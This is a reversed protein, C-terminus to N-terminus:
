QSISQLGKAVAEALTQRYNASAIRQAEAPNSLYGGEILVAPRNQGRLVTMFRARRVGRDQAGSAQLLTRHLRFASQFNQEDFANNPFVQRADDEYTRTLHSPMGAPTLCYTEIGALDRNASGSNFHLSLFFDANAEDAITVRDSLGLDVDSTRTMVVKWGARTLLRQVRLAWDLTFDKEYTGASSSTGIDRGGHGADIVITRTSNECCANEDSLLPQLTKQADLWHVHPLGGIIQPAFGLWCETGEFQAIRSGVKLSFTGSSGQSRYTPSTPDGNSTFDALDNFRGWTDLAIWTNIWNSPWRPNGPRSAASAVPAPSVRPTAVPAPAAPPLEISAAPAVELDPALVETRLPTPRQLGTQCGFLLALGLCFPLSKSLRRVIAMKRTLETVL